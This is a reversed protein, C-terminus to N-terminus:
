SILEISDAHLMLKGNGDRAQQWALFGQVKVNCGSTLKACAGQLHKGSVVVRIPCFVQRNLGAQQQESRHELQLVTHPIGAASTVQRPASAITGVILLHNTTM